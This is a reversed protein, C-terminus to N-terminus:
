VEELSLNVLLNYADSTLGAGELTLYEIFVEFFSKRIWKPL